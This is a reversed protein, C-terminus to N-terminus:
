LFPLGHLFNNVLILKFLSDISFMSKLYLMCSENKIICKILDVSIYIVIFVILFLSNKKLRKILKDKYEPTDLYDYLFLGSIMFFLPVSIRGTESFFLGFAGPFPVHILVVLVCAIFIYLLNNNKIKIM